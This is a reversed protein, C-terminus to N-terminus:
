KQEFSDARRSPLKKSDNLRFQFGARDHALLMNAYM